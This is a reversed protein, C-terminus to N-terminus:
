RPLDGKGRFLDPFSREISRRFFYNKECLIYGRKWEEHLKIEEESLDRYELAETKEPLLRCSVSLLNHQIGPLKLFDLLSGEPLMENKLVLQLPYVRPSLARDMGPLHPLAAPFGSQIPFSRAPFFAFLNNRYTEELFFDDQEVIRHNLLQDIYIAAAQRIGERGTLFGPDYPSVCGSLSALISLFLDPHLKHGSPLVLTDTVQGRSPTMTSQLIFAVTKEAEYPLSANQFQLVFDPMLDGTMQRHILEDAISIVERIEVEVKHLSSWVRIQDKICNLGPETWLLYNNKEVSTGYVEIRRPDHYVSNNLTLEWSNDAAARLNSTRLNELEENLFIDGSPIMIRIGEIESMLPLLEMFPIATFGIRSEDNDSFKVQLSELDEQHYSHWLIDNFYIDLSFLPSSVMVLLLIIVSRSMKM